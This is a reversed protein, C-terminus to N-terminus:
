SGPVWLPLCFSGAGTRAMNQADPQLEVRAGARRAAPGPEPIGNDERSLGMSGHLDCLISFITVRQFGITLLLKPFPAPSSLFEMSCIIRLMAGLTNSAARRPSVSHPGSGVHLNIGKLPSHPNAPTCVVAFPMVGYM